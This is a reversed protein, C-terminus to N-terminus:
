PQQVIRAKNFILFYQDNNKIRVPFPDSDFFVLYSCSLCSPFQAAAESSQGNCVLNNIGLQYGDFLM